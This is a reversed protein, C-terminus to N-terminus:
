AKAMSAQRYGEIPLRDRLGACYGQIRYCIPRFDVRQNMLRRSSEGLKLYAKALNETRNLLEPGYPRRSVIPQYTIM